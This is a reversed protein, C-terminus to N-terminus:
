KFYIENKEQLVNPPRIAVTFEPLRHLISFFLISPLSLTLSFSFGPRWMRRPFVVAREDIFRRRCFFFCCLTLSVIICCCFFFILSSIIFRFFFTNFICQTLRFISVVFFIIITAGWTFQRAPMKKPSVTNRYNLPREKKQRERTGRGNYQGDDCDATTYQIASPHISKTTAQFINKSKIKM